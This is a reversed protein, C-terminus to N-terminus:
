GLGNGEKKLSISKRRLKPPEVKPAAPDLLWCSARHGETLETEPPPTTLCAEMCFKCRPAFPCGAPPAFLDPPSGPIAALTRGAGAGTSPMSELLGWTYPHRPTYFLDRANGTEVIKGGYMVAIRQAMRAVVGLDHTILVVSAGFEAKLKNMLELIQAQTTVDLATTPEDAFLIKPNCALAMAIMVRQRMGGSFQHPYRRLNQGPNPIGVKGLLGEARAM